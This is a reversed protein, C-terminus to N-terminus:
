SNQEGRRQKQFFSRVAATIQRDTMKDSAEVAVLRKRIPKFREIERRLENKASGPGFVYLAEADRFVDILSRYFETLHKKYKAHRRSDSAIDQPGYPTRSRAGGSLRVFGGVGSEFTEVKEAGGALTVLVAKKHDIWVGLLRSM